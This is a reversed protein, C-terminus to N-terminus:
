CCEFGEFWYKSCEVPEVRRQEVLMEIPVLGFDLLEDGVDVVFKRHNWGFAADEDGVM